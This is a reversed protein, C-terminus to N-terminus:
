GHLIITEFPSLAPGSSTTVPKKGLNCWASFREGQHEFHIRYVDNAVMEVSSVLSNKWDLAGELELLQEATYGSPDDSTFVLKGLLVNIVLITYQQEVSLQQQEKRLIFVDPDNGFFRDNLQWRGLTSRLSAVSSVRERHRLWALLRHEWQLHIDGGIRCYDVQGLCAGLPAGCALLLKNGVLDRLFEMAEWMVGGRTKGPPPALCVAFLFDLKVLDYGWKDLVMHFLGSLYDRVGKHYFDLAFYWGGWMPNWGAKITQGKADRLLWEPNKRVLESNAAAVFPALWIGPTLGKARIADAMVAMGKPFSPKASFWDGVATQWGDDIQFFNFQLPSNAVNELDRLLIEASINTFHRYWSTWGLGGPAPETAPLAMAAKWGDFVDKETSEAM